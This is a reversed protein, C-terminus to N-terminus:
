EEALGVTELLKSISHAKNKKQIFYTHIAKFLANPHELPTKHM